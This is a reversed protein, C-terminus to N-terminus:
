GATSWGVGGRAGMASSGRNRAMLGVRAAFVVPPVVEFLGRIKDVELLAMVSRSPGAVHPSCRIKPFNV